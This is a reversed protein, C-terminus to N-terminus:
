LTESAADDGTVLNQLCCSAHTFRYEGMTAMAAATSEPASASAPQVFVVPVLVLSELLELVVDLVSEVVVVVL